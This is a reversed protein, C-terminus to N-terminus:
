SKSREIRLNLISEYTRMASHQAVLLDKDSNSLGKFVEGQIFHELKVIKDSLEVCEKLVRLEHEQM